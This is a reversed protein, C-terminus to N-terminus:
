PTREATKGLKSVKMKGSDDMMTFEQTVNDFLKGNSGKDEWVSRFRNPILWQFRGPRYPTKAMGIMAAKDTDTDENEKNINAWQESPNHYLEM